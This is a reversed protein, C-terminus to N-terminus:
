TMYHIFVKNNNNNNNSNNNKKILVNKLRSISRILVIKILWYENDSGSNTWASDSFANEGSSATLFM